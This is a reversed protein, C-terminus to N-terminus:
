GERVKQGQGWRKGSGVHSKLIDEVGDAGGGVALLFPWGNSPGEVRACLNQDVHHGLFDARSCMGPHYLRRLGLDTAFSISLLEPPRVTGSTRESRGPAVRFGLGWRSSRENLRM